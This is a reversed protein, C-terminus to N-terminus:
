SFWRPGEVTARSHSRGRRRGPSPGDRGRLASALAVIPETASLPAGTLAVAQQFRRADKQILATFKDAAPYLIRVTEVDNEPFSGTHRPRPHPDSRTKELMRARPLVHVVPRERRRPGAPRPDSVVANPGQRDTPRQWRGASLRAAWQAPQLHDRGGDAQFTNEGDGPGIPHAFLNRRGTNGAFDYSKWYVVSGAEHREILRNNRSVGSGNFGARVARGQRLSEAVDVRLLKELEVDTRPLQLVDHYLPPRAAAAV